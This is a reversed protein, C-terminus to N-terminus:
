SAWVLDKAWAKGLVCGSRGLFFSAPCPPSPHSRRPLAPKAM